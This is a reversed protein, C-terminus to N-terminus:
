VTWRPASIHVVAKRFIENPQFFEAEEVIKAACEEFKASVSMVLNCFGGLLGPGFNLNNKKILIKQKAPGYNSQQNM